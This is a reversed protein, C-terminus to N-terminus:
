EERDTLEEPSILCARRSASVTEAGYPEEPFLKEYNDIKIQRNPTNALLGPLDRFVIEQEDEHMTAVVCELADRIEERLARIKEENEKGTLTLVKQMASALQLTAARAGSREFVACIWREVDDRVGNENADVGATSSNAESPAAPQFVSMRSVYDPTIQVAESYAPGIALVVSCVFIFAKM